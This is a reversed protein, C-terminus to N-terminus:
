GVTELRSAFEAFRMLGADIDEMSCAYSMRLFGPAGFPSGPVAAVLAHELLLECLQLDNEIVIDGLRRGLLGTADPFVYFAGGPLVCQIGEIANLAGVIRHRRADYAALWEDLFAHDSTLAALAGHQAFATPNSTSQGQLTAMKKILPVQAVTFGIRWGTMAYTKSAGHVIIIRDRLDPREKLVNAFPAEDYVIYSYIDDTVIWLDHAEALAAIARLDEASQVAGTPNNPSNIVIGVTDDDIAAAVDAPDLRFGEEPRTPVIVPEGEALRIQAPYSVWFPSPVIVKDGPDVLVQFLNFLSHKGGCSVLVEDPTFPVDYHSSFTTAVAQRLAPLGAVPLYRTAGSRAADVMAEVIFDPTPFDPEGAGFSIIDAGDARMQKARSTVALTASPKIPSMRRAFKM